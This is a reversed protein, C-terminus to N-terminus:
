CEYGGTCHIGLDRQAQRLPQFDTVKKGLEAPDASLKLADLDAKTSLTLASETIGGPDSDSVAPLTLKVAQQAVASDLQFEKAAVDAAASPNSKMFQLGKVSARLWSRLMDPQQAITDTHVAFGASPVPFLDNLPGLINFGQTQLQVAIDPNLASFQIQGALLAKYRDPGSGLPLLQVSSLAINEKQLLLHTIVDDSASASSIGITKGKLDQYSKVDKNGVGYFVYTQYAYMVVRLPAGQYAARAASGGTAFQVQKSSLAPIAAQSAMGQLSVDLGEQAFFGEDSAIYFSLLGIDKTPM